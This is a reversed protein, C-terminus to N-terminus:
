GTQSLLMVFSRPGTKTGRGFASACPRPPALRGPSSRSRAEKHRRGVRAYSGPPSTRDWSAAARPSTGPRAALRCRAPWPAIASSIRRLSPYPRHSLAQRTSPLLRSAPPPLIPLRQKTRTQVGWMTQLAGRPQLFIFLVAAGLLLSFLLTPIKVRDGRNNARGSRSRSSSIPIPGSQLLCAGRHKRHAAGPDLRKRLTSTFFFLELGLPQNLNLSHPKIATNCACSQRRSELIAVQFRILSPSPSLRRSNSAM